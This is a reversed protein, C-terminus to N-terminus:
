RYRIRQLAERSPQAMRIIEIRHKAVRHSVNFYDAAMRLARNADPAKIIKERDRYIAVYQSVAGIM